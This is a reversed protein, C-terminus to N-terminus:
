SMNKLATISVYVCRRSVPQTSAPVDAPYGCGLFLRKPSRSACYYILQCCVGKRDDRCSNMVGRCAIASRDAQDARSQEAKSQVSIRAGQRTLWTKRTYTTGGRLKPWENDDCCCRWTHRRTNDCGDDHEIVKDDGRRM